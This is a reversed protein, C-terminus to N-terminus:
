VHSAAQGPSRQRLLPASTDDFAPRRQGNLKTSEGSSPDRLSLTGSSEDHERERDDCRRAPQPQYERQREREQRHQEKLAQLRGSTDFHKAIAELSAHGRCWGESAEIAAGCQAARNLRRRLTSWQWGLARKLARKSWARQELATLLEVGDPGLARRAFADHSGDPAGSMTNFIPPGDKAGAFRQEPPVAPSLSPGEKPVQLSWTSSKGPRDRYAPQGYTHRTLWGAKVLRRHAARVTPRTSNTQEVLTPIALSHRLSRRNRAAALHARLVARDTAATRGTFRALKIVCEMADIAALNPPRKPVTLGLKTALKYWGVRREQCVFCWFRHTLVNWSASSNRDDHWPCHCRIEDGARHADPGSLLLQAEIASLLPALEVPPAARMVLGCADFFAILPAPCTALPVDAPSQGPAWQYARGTEPHPSGPGVAFWPSGVEGILDVGGIFRKKGRVRAGPPITLYVHRKGSGTIVEWTTPIAVGAVHELANLAGHEDEDLILMRGPRLGYSTLDRDFWKGLQAPDSSAHIHGPDSCDRRRCRAGKELPHKTGARLPFIRLGHGRSILDLAAQRAGDPCAADVHADTAQPATQRYSSHM